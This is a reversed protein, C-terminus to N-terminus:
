RDLFHPESLVHRFSREQVGILAPPPEEPEPPPWDPNEKEPMATFKKTGSRLEMYVWEIELASAELVSESAGHRTTRTPAEVAKAGQCGAQDGQGGERDDDM